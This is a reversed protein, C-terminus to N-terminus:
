GYPVHRNVKTTYPENPDNPPQAKTPPLLVELDYYMMFPVKFQNEGNCFEITKGKHPMEVRIAENNKCYVQHQDRSKELSFGQLCNTCFYQKGKHKSNSGSLLRSLSKIAVYHNTGIESIMLLNIERDSKYNSNRHIHIDKGELGLVNVFINNKNEFKGIDKISVPFELGSWDYNGAFKRLNSVREPNFKIDM